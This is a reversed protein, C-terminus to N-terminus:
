PRVKRQMTSVYPFWAVVTRPKAKDYEVLGALATVQCDDKWMGAQTGADLVMKLLNDTDLVQMDPRYFIALLAVNGSLPPRRCAGKFAWALAEQAAKTRPPTYSGGRVTRARAKPVPAGLQAFGHADGLQAEAQVLCRLRGLALMIDIV